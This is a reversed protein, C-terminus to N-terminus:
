YTDALVKSTELTDYNYVLLNALNIAEEKNNKNVCAEIQPLFKQMQTYEEYDAFVQWSFGKVDYNNNQEFVM